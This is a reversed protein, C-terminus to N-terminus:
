DNEGKQFETQSVLHRMTEHLFQLDDPSLEPERRCVAVVGRGAFLHLRLLNDPLKDFAKRASEVAPAPLNEASEGEQRSDANLSWDAAKVKGPKVGLMYALETEALAVGALLEDGVVTLGLKSAQSALRGMERQGRSPLLLALAGWLFLGCLLVAIVLRIM